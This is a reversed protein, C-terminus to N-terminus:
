KIIKDFLYNTLKIDNDNDRDYIEVVLYYKSLLNETLNDGSRKNIEIYLPRESKYDFLFGGDNNEAIQLFGKQMDILPVSDNNEKKLIAVGLDKRPIWKIPDTFNFGGGNNPIETLYMSKISLVESWPNKLTFVIRGSRDSLEQIEDIVIKPNKGKDSQETNNQNINLRDLIEKAKKADNIRKELATDAKELESLKELLQKKDETNKKKYTKDLQSKTETIQKEILEKEKYYQNIINEYYMTNNVIYYSQTYENYNNDGVRVSDNHQIIMADTSDSIKTSTCSIAIALFVISSIKNLKM